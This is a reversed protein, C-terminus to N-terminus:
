QRAHALHGEQSALLGNDRLSSLFRSVDEALEAADAEFEEGLRAVIEDEAIGERLMEAIRGGTENTVFVKERLTDFLVSGAKEHRLQVDQRFKM